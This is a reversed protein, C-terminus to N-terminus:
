TFNEVGKKKAKKKRKKSAESKEEFDRIVDDPVLAEM